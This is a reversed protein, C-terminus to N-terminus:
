CPATRNAGRGELPVLGTDYGIRSHAVEGNRAAHKTVVRAGSDPGDGGPALAGSGGVGDCLAIARLLGHPDDVADELPIRGAYHDGILVGDQVLVADMSAM